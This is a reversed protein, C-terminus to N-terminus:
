SARGGSAFQKGNGGLMRGQTHMATALQVCGLRQVAPQLLQWTHLQLGVTKAALGSDVLRTVWCLHLGAACTAGGPPAVGIGHVPSAARVV